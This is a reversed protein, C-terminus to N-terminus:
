MYCIGKNHTCDIQSMSFNLKTSGWSNEVEFDGVHYLKWKGVPEDDLCYETSALPHFGDANSSFTSSSIHFQVPKVNWGHIQEGNVVRRGRRKSARGLQLRFFLSYTGAPFEFELSGQVELWWTEQLYAITKFR